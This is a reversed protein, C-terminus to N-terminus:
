KASLERLLADIDKRKQRIDRFGIDKRMITSAAEQAEKALVDNKEDRAQSALSLMLDYRIDLERDTSTVDILGLANRFEGVADSHWGERAFCRGLFHAARLRLRADEKCTQFAQMAADTNGSEYELRGLEFKITRDTPYKEGRERFEKLELEHLQAARQAIEAKAQTHGKEALPQLQEIRRRFQAIRIDGAVLRFRYEGIAKYGTLLVEIARKESEPTGKRRLIAVLRQIAEASTPNAAYAEEAKTLNFEGSGGAGSLSAAMELERQKAADKLVGKYAGGGKAAEAFGGAEIAHGALLQKLEAALAGDAPDVEQARRLIKLAETFSQAKKLLEMTKVLSRKSPKSENAHLSLNALKPALWQAPELFNAAIIAEMLASAKNVSDVDRMWALAAVAIKDNPTPGDVGKLDDRSAPTAGNAVFAKACEFMADYHTAPTPDAKLAEAFLSLAYEFQYRGVLDQAKLILSSAKESDISLGDTASDSKKGFGFIAM